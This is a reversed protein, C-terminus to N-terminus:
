GFESVLGLAVGVVFLYSGPDVDDSAYACGFITRSPAACPTAM